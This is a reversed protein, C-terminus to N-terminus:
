LYGVKLSRTLNTSSTFYVRRSNLKTQGDGKCPIHGSVTGIGRKYDDSLVLFEYVSIM